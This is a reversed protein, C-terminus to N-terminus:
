SVRRLHPMSGLQTIFASACSDQAEGCHESVWRLFVDKRVRLCGGYRFVAEPDTNEIEKVIEYAKTRSVMLYEQVYKTTVYQERSAENGEHEM